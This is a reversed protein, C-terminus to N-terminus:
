KARVSGAIKLIIEEEGPVNTTVRVNGRIVGTMDGTNGVLTLEYLGGGVNEIPKIVVNMSALNSGIVEAALIELTQGDARSLRVNKQFNKGQALSLLRFMSDSAQVKGQINANMGVTKNIPRPTTDGPNQVTGNVRLSGTYWGWKINPDLKVDVRWTKPLAGEASTKTLTLKSDSKLEGFVSVDGLEFSENPANIAVSRTAGENLPIRGFSLAPPSVSVSSIVNAKIKIEQSPNNVDNTLVRVVKTQKGSGKPKFTLEIQDGEGPAFLTKELATTTCGCTPQVRFVELTQDGNNSFRVSAKVTEYDQVDGFDVITEPMLMMSGGARRQSSASSQSSGQNSTGAKSEAPTNKGSNDCGQSIGLLLCIASTAVIRSSYKAM